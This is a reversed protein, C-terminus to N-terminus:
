ACFSSAHEAVASVQMALAESEQQLAAQELALGDVPGGTVMVSFERLLEVLVQSHAGWSILESFIAVRRDVTALGQRQTPSLGWALKPNPNPAPEAPVAAAVARAKVQAEQNEARQQYRRMSRGALAVSSPLRGDPMGPQSPPAFPLCCGCRNKATLAGVGSMFLSESHGMSLKRSCRPRAGKNPAHRVNVPCALLERPAYNTRLLGM